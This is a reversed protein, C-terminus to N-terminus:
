AKKDDDETSTKSKISYEISPKVDLISQVFQEYKESEIVVNICSEDEFMVSLKGTTRDLLVTDIKEINYSSKLFGLSTKLKKGDVAYYSSTFFLLAIVFLSVSVFFQLVYRVITAAQIASHELGFDIVQWLTIAFVAAGFVMAVAIFIYMLRTFKYRFIKMCFNYMMARMFALTNKTFFLPMAAHFPAFLKM